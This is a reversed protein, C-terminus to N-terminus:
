LDFIVAKPRNKYQCTWSSLEILNGDIATRGEEEGEDKEGEREGEIRLIGSTWRERKWGDSWEGKEEGEKEANRFSTFHHM